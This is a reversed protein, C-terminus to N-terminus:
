ITFGVYRFVRVRGERPLKIEVIPGGEHAPNVFIREAEPFRRRAVAEAECRLRQLEARSM